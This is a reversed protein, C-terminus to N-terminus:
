FDERYVTVVFIQIIKLSQLHAIPLPCYAYKFKPAHLNDIIISFLFLGPLYLTYMYALITSM